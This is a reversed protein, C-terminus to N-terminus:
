LNKDALLEIAKAFVSRWLDSIDPDDPSNIITWGPGEYVQMNELTKDSIRVVYFYRVEWENTLQRWATDTFLPKIDEISLKLNSEEQTLERWAANLPDEGPEVAGGFTSIKGPSDIGPIDDRRQGIIKRSDTVIIIGAYRHEIKDINPQKGM